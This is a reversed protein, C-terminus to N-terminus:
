DYCIMPEAKNNTILSFCGFEKKYTSCNGSTSTENNAMCQGYICESNDTCVKGADRSPIQCYIQPYDHGWSKWVGGKQLCKEETPADDQQTQTCKQNICQIISPCYFDCSIGQYDKCRERYLNYYKELYKVNIPINCSCGGCDRPAGTCDSDSLCQQDVSSIPQDIDPNATSTTNFILGEPKLLIANIIKQKTTMQPEISCLNLCTMFPVRLVTFRYKDCSCTGTGGFYGVSVRIYLAILIILGIILIKKMKIKQLNM